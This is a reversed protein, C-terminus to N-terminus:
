TARHAMSTDKFRCASRMPKGRSDLIERGHMSKIRTDM